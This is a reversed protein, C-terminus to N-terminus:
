GFLYAVDEESLNKVFGDEETILEDATQKKRKQLNIIKEEITDKCIMKYAFVHNQQGIRHTRDIAQQEVATNWWPDFLFVYSAATLNLGANGAKLSILFINVHNGETQFDNVLEMRRKSDVSGDIQYFAMGKKTFTEGLLDLMSKFQSFVLVKQNTLNNALEDVLMDTKVSDSSTREEMPLLMPSNCIQRLKMIGQLLALKSKALGNNKIDLFISSKIQDKIEDYNNKQQVSMNCWLITETKEPLDPAVQEKTRRLIFPATMKQLAKIKDPDRDKDIADAYERKFFAQSGFMGPLLFNLQAYLDFTNNMVPTGSLAVRQSAQLQSIAQTIQATPNKINHSEDAVITSFYISQLLGIDVRVTGYSTIIVQHMENTLCDANRGAGHFVVSKIEPAFKELEQQWNYILSSPCVIIHKAKPSKAVRHALFCITQLTKGLGMDDALCAGANAEALLMLWEFGKQQYPRLNASISAPVPYILTEPQQWQQWKEWWDKGIVPKLVQTEESSNQEFLAMWKAVQIDKGNIKGHKIITGYQQMWDDGPLGLSGDKLLIAKQGALLMKQLENLPVEENGFSIKLSLLLQDNEEKKVALDTSVKHPSYRFHKLLDMGVISVDLSLLQHYAKFFWHKKQADAFSVYFTGNLQKPFNPHLSQLLRVFSKEWDENRVISFTEGHKVIETTPQFQGEVLMDDYEWQPTLVLFSNSIESLMVRNKPLVNVENKSFLNNRNVTYGDELKAL